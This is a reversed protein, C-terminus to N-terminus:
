LSTAPRQPMCSQCTFFCSLAPCKLLKGGFRAPVRFVLHYVGKEDRKLYKEDKTPRPSMSKIGKIQKEDLILNIDRILSQLDM